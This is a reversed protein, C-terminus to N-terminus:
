QDVPATLTYNNLWNQAFVAFDTLNLQCDLAADGLHQVDWNVPGTTAQCANEACDLNVLASDTELLPNSDEVAVTATMQAAHYDVTMTTTVEIPYTTGAPLVTVAPTFVVNPDVM